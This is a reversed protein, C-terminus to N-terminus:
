RAGGEVTYGSPIQFLSAPPEVRQMNTLRYSTEGFRPDNHKALVVVQLDPSHWREDTITLMNENGAQGAAIVLTTRIGQAQIGAIEQSGLDETKGADLPGYPQAGSTSFRQLHLAQPDPEAAGVRASTRPQRSPASQGAVPLKRAVHDPGLVYSRGAVPDSIFVFRTRQPDQSSDVSEERRTRGESDRALVLVRRDIVRNGEALTQTTQVAVEATFPRGTVVNDDFLEDGLPGGTRIHVSSQASAGTVTLMVLALFPIFKM